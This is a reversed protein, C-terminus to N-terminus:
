LWKVTLRSAASGSSSATSRAVPTGVLNLFRGGPVSAMSNGSASYGVVEQGGEALRASHRHALTFTRRPGLRPCAKCVNFPANQGTFDRVGLAADGLQQRSVLRM